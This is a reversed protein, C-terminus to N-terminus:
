AKMKASPHCFPYTCHTTKSLANNERSKGQGMIYNQKLFFFCFHFIFDKEPVHIDQMMFIPAYVCSGRVLYILWLLTIPLCLHFRPATGSATPKQLRRRNCPYHWQVRLFCAVVSIGNYRRKNASLTAHLRNM